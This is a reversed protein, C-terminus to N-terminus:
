TVGHQWQFALDCHDGARATSNSAADGDNKALAASGYVDGPAATAATRCGCTNRSRDVIRCVFHGAAAPLANGGLAIMAIGFLDVRQERTYAFLVSPEIQQDIVRPTTVLAMGASQPRSIKPIRWQRQPVGHDLATKFSMQERSVEADRQHKRVLASEDDAGNRPIVVFVDAAEVINRLVADRAHQPPQREFQFRVADGGDRKSGSERAGLSNERGELNGLIM